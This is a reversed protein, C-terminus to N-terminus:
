EAAGLLYGPTLGKSKLFDKIVGKGSPLIKDIDSNSPSSWIANGVLRRVIFRVKDFQLESIIRYFLRAKDDADFIDLGAAIADRLLESWAAFARPSILRKIKRQTGDDESKQADFLHFVEEDFINCLRIVNGIESERLYKKTDAMDDETPERYLFQAFLSKQLGDVTLPLEKTSKNSKSVLRCIKNQEEDLVANFLFDRFQKNVDGKTEKSYLFKVFGSESKVNGDDSHKYEELAKGFQKGLKEVMISSYFKTQVFKDHAAIITPNLQVANPEIYIKLEFEKREGWLLAAIKHQGDFILIRNNHLRAISPQLLTNTQLHRYLEFVKDFILYRPQLGIQGDFDDDSNIVNVPLTAYFYKWGTTPCEHLHFSKKKNIFELEVSDLQETRYVLEAFSGIFKKDQLYKLEDKLTLAQGRAFFENMQLKVRFDDLPLTGKEQNHKQCMPAINDAESQGGKAFARIHDFHITEGEPIDHGTAFCKRGYRALITQKEQESIQRAITIAM